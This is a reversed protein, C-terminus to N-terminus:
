TAAIRLIGSSVTWCGPFALFGSPVDGQPKHRHRMVGSVTGRGHMCQTIRNM